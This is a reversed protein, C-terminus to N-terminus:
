ENTVSTWNTPPTGLSRCSAVYASPCYVSFTYFISYRELKNRKNPRPCSVAAASGILVLRLLLAVVFHTSTAPGLVKGDSLEEKILEHQPPQLNQDHAKWSSLDISHNTMAVTLLKLVPSWGKWKGWLRQGPIHAQVQFKGELQLNATTNSM